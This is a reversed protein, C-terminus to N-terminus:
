CINSRYERANDFFKQISDIDDNDLFLIFDNIFKKYNILLQKIQDKNTFIIDCWIESQSLSIRTTDKFGGAAYFIADSCENNVFNTISASIIHPLHSILGIVKDHFDYDMIIPVSGIKTVIGDILVNLISETVNDSPILLYNANLFLDESSFSFGSKENGAMPHGGIFFINEPIIEKIQKMIIGKTSGVDTIIVKKKVFPLIQEIVQITKGVPTCIFIIDADTKFDLKTYADSVVGKSLADKIYDENTDIATIRNIDTYKRIAKALSGGILGLGIIIVHKIM